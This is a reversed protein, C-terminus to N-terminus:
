TGRIYTDGPIQRGQPTFHAIKSTSTISSRGMKQDDAGKAFRSKESKQATAVVDSTM